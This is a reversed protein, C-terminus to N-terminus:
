GNRGPSGVAPPVSLMHEGDSLECFFLNFILLLTPTSSVIYVMMDTPSERGGGGGWYLKVLQEIKSM